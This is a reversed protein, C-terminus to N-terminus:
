VFPCTTQRSTYITINTTYNTVKMLKVMFFFVFKWDNKKRHQMVGSDVFKWDNKNRHQMCSQCGKTFLVNCACHSFLGPHTYHICHIYFYKFNL